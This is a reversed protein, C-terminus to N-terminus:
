LVYKFKTFEKDATTFKELYFKLPRTVVNENTTTRNTVIMKNGEIVFSGQATGTSLIQTVHNSPTENITYKSSQEEIGTIIESPELTNGIYDKFSLQLFIEGAIEAAAIGIFANNTILNNDLEGM